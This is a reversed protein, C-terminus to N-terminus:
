LGKESVVPVFRVRFPPKNWMTYVTFDRDFSLDQGVVMKLDFSWLVKTLFLRIQDWAIAYGPCMRPGQNFPLFAKQNDNQYKPDYDPHDPPLWRQPRYHLPDAFYRPSRAAAFGHPVYTGDVMAGPSIRPLGDSTNQHIRFTEQLCAHVYKMDAVANPTIEEYKKFKTRIENVLAAYAKPAQLLFFISSYFQNAIPEWGAALLQAAIQELHNIQKKDTPSPADASLIQEFYDLHEIRGRRNIRSQVEESNMKLARPMTLWVSPPLFLYILPRLLPFKKSVAHITLFLNAKIAAALLLSSKMDRTQNMQRNYTMDASIDMALWDAWQRMEVGEDRKGIEKMREVFLDIYKQLTAEKAKVNRTSFAPSLRKAVERHRVPDMELFIGGDDGFDQSNTKVFTELNRVHM